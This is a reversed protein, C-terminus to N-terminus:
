SFYLVLYKSWIKPAFIGIAVAVASIAVLTVAGAALDKVLGAKPNFDPSVMDTLQEIASNFAEAAMVSGITLCLVAWEIGSGRLWIGFLVALLAAVAHLQM